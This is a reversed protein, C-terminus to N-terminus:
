DMARRAFICRATHNDTNYNKIAVLRFLSNQGCAELRFHSRLTASESYPDFLASYEHPEIRIDCQLTQRETSERLETDYFRHLGSCDDRDEFCLTTAMTKSHFTALPYGEAGIVSPWYEGEPLPQIGHYVVVRPEIYDDESLKDRNGVTLVMASPASSTAGAFSATPRFLPNLSSKTSRKTAYNEVHREWTGLAEGKGSTYRAAAGDVPQYGLRTLQFSDVACETLLEGNGVQRDRWDVIKDGYFDDYPEVFLSKSPEHAYFRLNFMQALAEFLEAQSININAVDAFTTTEGYGIAGGYVPEVYCGAHMTLTQGEDAGGFSINNFLKPNSPSLTEFPTRIDVVVERRGSESVYGDYLAWDGTYEVWNDSNASMTLLRTSGNYGSEFIVSSVRETVEGYGELLYRITPDYDFIFLKHAIGGVVDNRMDVHPNNLAVEVNCDKSIHLLTFGKLYRSSAITYDTTYHLHMDFAVSIERKPTYIPRGNSFTFYGGRSYAESVMNGQEDVDTPTVTDVIAGVNAGFIPEWLFVKGSEGAAATVSTTRFAKFGMSQKLASTDVRRYAGSILLRQVLESNLFDSHLTYGADRIISNVIESVSLFPHYDNPMLPKQVVYLGTDEPEPYSDRRLPLMRIPKDESWSREVDTINMVMSGEVSSENLRTLAVNHALRSGTSRLMMRYYTKSGAREVGHLIADGEFLTTGDVMVAGRHKTTNFEVTRHMDEAHGMLAMLEPTAEIDFMIEEGDRWAQLSEFRKASHHPLEIQKNNRPKCEVSDIQITIM